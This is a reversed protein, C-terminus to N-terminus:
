SPGGSGGRWRFGAFIIQGSILDHDFFVGHGDDDKYDDGTCYKKQAEAPDRRLHRRHGSLSSLTKERHDPLFAFRRSPPV